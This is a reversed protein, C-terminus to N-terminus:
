VENHEAPRGSLENKVKRVFSFSASLCFVLGKNPIHHFGLFCDDKFGQNKSVVVAPHGAAKLWTLDEKFHSAVIWTEESM